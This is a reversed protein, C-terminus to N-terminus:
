NERQLQWAESFFESAGRERFDPNREIISTSELQHLQWDPLDNVLESQPVAFPPGTMEAQPYDVTLLLGRCGKPLAGYVAQRYAPRQDAPLAIMAGRDFVAQCNALIDADVAFLDGCIIHIQGAVYHTGHPFSEIEPQLDHEAFFHQVALESVEIGLVEHGQGALWLLDLSKGCFPVLVRTEGPLDLKDWYTQLLPTVQQQHWGTSGDEWRQQWYTKDLTM